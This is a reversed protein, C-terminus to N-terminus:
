VAISRVIPYLEAGGTCTEWTGMRLDRGSKHSFTSHAPIFPAAPQVFGPERNAESLSVENATRMSPRAESRGERREGNAM